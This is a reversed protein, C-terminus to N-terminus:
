NATKKVEHSFHEVVIICDYLLKFWKFSDNSELLMVKFVAISFFLLIISLKVFLVMDM